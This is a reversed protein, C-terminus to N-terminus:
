DDSGDIGLLTEVRQLLEDDMSAIKDKMAIKRDLSIMKGQLVSGLIDSTLSNKFNIYRDKFGDFDEGEAQDQELVPFARKIIDFLATMCSNFMNRVQDSEMTNIVRELNDLFLFLLSGENRAIHIFDAMLDRYSNIRPEAIKDISYLSNHFHSGTEQFDRNSNRWIDRFIGETLQLKYLGIRRFDKYELIDDPMGTAAFHTTDRIVVIEKAADYASVILFHTGTSEPDGYTWPSYFVNKYTVPVLVPNMGDINTQIIRIFDAPASVPHQRITLGLNGLSKVTRIRDSIYERSWNNYLCYYFLYYFYNNYNYYGSAGAIPIDICNVTEANYGNPGGYCDFDLSKLM